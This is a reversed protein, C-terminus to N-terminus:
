ARGGRNSGFFEWVLVAAATAANLSEVSEAMPIYVCGSSAQLTEESLGHGENGIIVCDGRRLELEGLRQADRELAAAFVRRGCSIIKKVACPFDDVRDIRVGFLTGMSARLTKSNYIDACDSSMVIRDVGFAASVRVIAGVNQPDRVSELLLIRESFNEYCAERDSRRHLRDMYRAVCIVGEPASEETLREFVSRSVTYVRCNIDNAKIGYLRKAKELVADIESECVLVFALEVGNRIAECMLKVGDFRFLKESERNKKNALGRTLSVFQNQSSTIIERSIEM